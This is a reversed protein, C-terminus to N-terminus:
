VHARGIKLIAKKVLYKFTIESFIILTTAVILLVSLIITLIFAVGRSKWPSRKEQEHYSSNFGRMLAMFGNTTFYLAFVFGLSLLGGRQHKIIDEITERASEYANKPLVNQILLLLQDQFDRIPVYPILSFLFITAPFIALFFSFALSQARTVISGRQIGTFFFDAVNYVPMGEFGPLAVRKTYKTLEKVPASYVIKKAVRKLITNGKRVKM